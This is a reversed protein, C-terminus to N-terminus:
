LMIISPIVNRLVIDGSTIAAAIMYTGTEVRDPIVAHRCGRLRKVGEVEILHSGAGKIKADMKILFNALDVVEPECAANEIRTRGRALTAAMLVNGTALVSSGYSGGLYLDAGKLTTVTAVVYGHEIKIKVGLEELGKIHLDIPRAGIVCGGPLSVQAKGLRAVLPGLVCFSARMTSVLKYPAVHSLAATPKVTITGGEKTVKMGLTRLIKIMTAVDWLDPVNTIVSEGDALITAALIPLVSNKAGSITVEGHLRRGGEVVIKDM